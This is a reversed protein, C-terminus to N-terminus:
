YLCRPKDTCIQVVSASHNRIANWNIKNLLHDKKIQWKAFFVSMEILTLILSWKFCIFLIYMHKQMEFVNAGLLLHGRHFNYQHYFLFLTAEKTYNVPKTIINISYALFICKKFVIQKISKIDWIKYDLQKWSSFVVYSISLRCLLILFKKSIRTIM